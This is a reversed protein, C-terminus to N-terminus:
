SGEQYEDLWSGDADFATILRYLPLAEESVVIFLVRGTATAAVLIFRDVHGAPDPVEYGRGDDFASVVEHLLVGHRRAVDSYKREDWLFGIDM